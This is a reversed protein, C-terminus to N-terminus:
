NRQGTTLKYTGSQYTLGKMLEPSEYINGIVEVGLPVWCHLEDEDFGENHYKCKHRSMFCGYNFIIYSISANHHKIIDGEYIDLGNKDKLGTYQMITAEQRKVVQEENFDWVGTIFEGNVWELCEGNQMRKSELNWARFKIERSM